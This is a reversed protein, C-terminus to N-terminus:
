APLQVSLVPSFLRDPADEPMPCGEGPLEDYRPSWPLHVLLGNERRELRPLIPAVLRSRAADLAAEVDSFQALEELVRRTPPALWLQPDALAARATRWRAAVTEQLDPRAVQGPPLRALFFRTDYRRREASPTIWHAFYVFADSALGGAEALREPFSCGSDDAVGGVRLGSEECLERAAAAVAARRDAETWTRGPSPQQRGLELSPRVPVRRDEPDLQGGPFVSARRMFRTGPHREVLLLEPGQDADRLVVVTSADRPRLDAPTGPSTFVM